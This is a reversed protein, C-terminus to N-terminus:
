VHEHMFTKMQLEYMKQSTQQLKNLLKDKCNKILDSLMAKLEKQYINTHKEWGSGEFLLGTTHRQFSCVKNKYLANLIQAVSSAIDELNKGELKNIEKKFSELTNNKIVKVQNDFSLYLHQKIQDVLELQIKGQVEPNYQRAVSTYHTIAESLIGVVRDKFDAIERESSQSFLTQLKDEVLKSAEDKIENCRYNAVM